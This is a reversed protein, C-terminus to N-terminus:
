VVERFLLQILSDAHRKLAEEKKIDGGPFSNTLEPMSMPFSGGHTIMFFITRTEINPIHGNAKCRDILQSMGEYFPGIVKETIYAAREKNSGGEFVIIRSLYPREASMKIFWRIIAKLQEVASEPAQQMIEQVESGLESTLFDIAAKWVGLKSGFYYRSLATDTDAREAIMGLSAGEFGKEGFLELAAALLADKLDEKNTDKTPRGRRRVEKKLM